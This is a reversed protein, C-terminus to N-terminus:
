SYLYKVVNRVPVKEVSPDECDHLRLWECEYITLKLGSASSFDDNAASRCRITERSRRLRQLHKKQKRNCYLSTVYIRRPTAERQKIERNLESSSFIAVKIVRLCNLVIRFLRFTVEEETTPPQM